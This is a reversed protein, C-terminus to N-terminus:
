SLVLFLRGLVLFLRGWQVCCLCLFVFVSGFLFRLSVALFFGAAGLVRGPVLQCSFFQAAM